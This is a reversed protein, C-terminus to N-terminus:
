RTWLANLDSKQVHHFSFLVLGSVHCDLRPHNPLPLVAIIPRFESIQGVCWLVLPGVSWHVTYLQMDMVLFQNEKKKYM